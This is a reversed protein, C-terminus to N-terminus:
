ECFELSALQCTGEHCVSPFDCNDQQCPSGVPVTPVCSSGICVSGGACGFPEACPQGPAAPPPLPVCTNTTGDCTYEMLYCQPNWPVRAWPTPTCPSDEKGFAPAPCIGEQCLAGDWCAKGECSAGIGVAETCLAEDQTGPEKWCMEDKACTTDGCVDGTQKPPQCTGCTAQPGPGCDKSACEADFLCAQGDTRSGAALDCAPFKPLDYYRHLLYDECTGQSQQTACALWEDTSFSVAPSSSMLGCATEVQEVCRDENGYAAAFYTPLCRFQVECTAKAIQPCRNPEANTDDQAEGPTDPASDLGADNDPQNTDADADGSIDGSGCASLLLTCLIAPYSSRIM